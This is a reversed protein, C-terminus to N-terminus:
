SAPQGEAHLLSPALAHKVFRAAAEANLKTPPAAGAADAMTSGGEGTEEGAEEAAAAAAAAAQEEAMRM